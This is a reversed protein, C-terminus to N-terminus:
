RGADPPERAPPTVQVRTTRATPTKTIMVAQGTNLTKIENPHVQPREVQRRTGRSPSRRGLPSQVNHTTDWVLETGIMDSIMRASAPVDQRHALKLSIIGLVQERFGPAARDLDTLEQTALLVAVGAERGRALLALANDSGVASFEDIAVMAQLPPAGGSAALRQGVAVTLDQVVLTGVQAALKGYLNSNLSFLVVEPGELTRGLDITHGGTGPAAPLLFPGAESETLVALRTGLGRIASHQDPTLGAVYDLVGGALSRDLDRLTWALRQPDMLAVVEDLRAPRGPQAVALVRFVTQVYREAARQYHPETFREAAILKDKLVTPNGHAVPNWHSPGDLTWLGFPRGAAVAARGLERAFAPSGKLDIAVMPRGRRIRDELITLLTTSKGAGSAGVILGHTALQPETLVVPRRREDVGLVVAGDRRERGATAVARSRSRQRRAVTALTTIALAAGLGALGWGLPLALVAAFALLTWYPPRRPPPAPSV